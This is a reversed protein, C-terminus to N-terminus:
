AGLWGAEYSLTHIRVKVKAQPHQEVNYDLLDWFFVGELNELTQLYSYVGQYNGELEVEFPHLYIVAVPQKEQQEQAGEGTSGGLEVTEVPLSKAQILATGSRDALVSRLMVLMQQPSVLNSAANRVKDNELQLQKRLQKLEERAAINPDKLKQEQLFALLKQQHSRAQEATAIQDPLKNLALLPQEILLVYILVVPVVVATLILLLRERKSLLDWRESWQSWQKNM